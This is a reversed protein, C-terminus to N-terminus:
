HTSHRYRKVFERCAERHFCGKVHDLSATFGTSICYVAIMSPIYTLPLNDISHDGKTFTDYIIRICEEQTSADPLSMSILIMCTKILQKGFTMLAPSPILDKTAEKLLRFQEDLNIQDVNTVTQTSQHAKDSEMIIFIVAQNEEDIDEMMAM